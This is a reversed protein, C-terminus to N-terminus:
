PNVRYHNDLDFGNTYHTTMGNKLIEACEEDRDKFMSKGYISPQAHNIEGCTNCKFGTWLLDDIYFSEVTGTYWGLIHAIRHKLTKMQSENHTLKYLRPARHVFPQNETLLTLTNGVM